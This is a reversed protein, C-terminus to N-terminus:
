NPSWRPALAKVGKPTIRRQAEGNARMIYVAKEGDRDSSFAVFRGDPSFSPDENNGKDTLQTMLSGDPNVTFIQNKGGARGSFAIRDGKPSWVPSTNYSGSFTIRRTDFGERSMTFIQPSGDRDSVFVILRGDPSISPTVDIGRSATLRKLQSSSIKFMYIDQNGDRSSSMVFEDPNPFFDGAINTGKSIFVNRESMKGFDLLYIGWQRNRESSYLLRSGDRAWRPGLMVRGKVGMRYTRVGDWDSMMLEDSGSKREVYAIRTRFIGKQGTFQMYIDNAITHALPRLLSPESQYEKRFLERGEVVDYLSVVVVLNRDSRVTGKVVADAGIASWNRQQFPNSPAEIFASRDLCLFLGTFDLDGIVIEPIDRGFIGSFDSVAIPVKRFAPSNIDIYVKADLDCFLSFQFFLMSFLFVAVRRKTGQLASKKKV